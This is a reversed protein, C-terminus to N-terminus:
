VDWGIIMCHLKDTIIKQWYDRNCNTKNHCSDCLPVFNCTEDGDCGCNKNYNVHHVSLKRGNEAQTTPCLFCKHGFKSRIYEKFANNFKVCYPEFSKGGQWNPHKEGKKAASMNAKWEETFIIGKRTASLKAKTEKTLKRGKMACSKCLFHYQNKRIVRFAGCFACVALIPKGSKPMLDSSFYGFAEYTAEELIMEMPKEGKNAASMSARAEETWKRGKHAAGVLAKHEETLTKGKQTCLGCLFHYHNKTTVRFAGCLECAALILKNSGHTLESPRYGFAEKTAEELIL